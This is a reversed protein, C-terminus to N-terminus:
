YFIGRPAQVRLVMNFLVFLVAMFIFATGALIMGKKADLRGRSLLSAVALFFIFSSLYFGVGEMVAFFLIICLFVSGVRSFPYRRYLAEGRGNPAPLVSKQLLLSQALLLLALIGILSVIVRPFMFAQPDPVRGIYCYLAFAGVFVISAVVVNAHHREM